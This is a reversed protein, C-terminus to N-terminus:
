SLKYNGNIVRIASLFSDIFIHGIHEKNCNIGGYVFSEDSLEFQGDRYQLSYSKSSDMFNNWLTDGVIKTYDIKKYIDTFEHTIEFSFLRLFSKENVSAEPEIALSTLLVAKLGLMKFLPWQQAKYRSSNLKKIVGVELLINLILEVNDKEGIEKSATISLKETIDELAFFANNRAYEAIIYIMKAFVPFTLALMCRHVELPLRYETYQKAIQQIAKKTQGYRGGTNGWIGYLINSIRDQEAKNKVMQKSRSSLENKLGMMDNDYYRLMYVMDDLWELKIKRITKM